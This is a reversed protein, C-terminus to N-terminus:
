KKIKNQDFVGANGLLGIPLGILFATWVGIEFTSKQVISKMFRVLLGTDKAAQEANWVFSGTQITHEANNIMWPFVLHAIGGFVLGIFFFVVVLVIVVGMGGSNAEQINPLAADGGRRSIENDVIVQIESPLSERSSKALALDEGSINNIRQTFERVSYQLIEPTREEINMCLLAILQKDSHGKITSEISNSM